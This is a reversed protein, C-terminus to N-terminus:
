NIKAAFIGFVKLVANENVLLKLNTVTTVTVLFCDKSPLSITESLSELVPQEFRLM